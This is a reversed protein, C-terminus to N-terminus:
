FVKLGGLSALGDDDLAAGADVTAEASGGKM